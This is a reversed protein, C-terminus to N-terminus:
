RTGDADGTTKRRRKKLPASKKKPALRGSQWTMDAYIFWRRMGYLDTFQIKLEGKDALRQLETRVGTIRDNNAGTAQLLESTTMPVFSILRRVLDQLEKTPAQPGLKWCYRVHQPGGLRLTHVKNEAVFKDLVAQVKATDLEDITKALTTLDPLGKRVVEEIRAELSKPLEPEHLDPKKALATMDGGEIPATGRAMRAPRVDDVKAAAQNIRDEFSKLGDLIAARFRGFEAPLSNDEGSAKHDSGHPKSIM